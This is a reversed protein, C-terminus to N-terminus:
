CQLRSMRWALDNVSAGGSIRRVEMWDTDIGNVGNITSFATRFGYRELLGKADDTFDIARGNPYAFSDPAVGTEAGIRDRCTRIEAELQPLDLRSVIVHNHTHGGWSTLESADRVEDWTMTQRPARVSSAHVELADLISETTAEKELEPQHKIYDKSGRLFAAKGPATLEFMQSPAWPLAARAKTTQNVALYLRDSWSVLSPEDVFRTSLFNIAPIRLRRLVPYAHEYYDRYGDDFTVLVDPRSGRSDRNARDRLQDPSIVNCTRVLWEMQARFSAVDLNPFPDTTLGVRHYLLVLCGPKRQRRSLAFGPRTAVVAKVAHKLSAIPSPM